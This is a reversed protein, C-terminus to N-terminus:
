KAASLRLQFEARADIRAHESSADMQSVFTPDNRLEAIKRQCRLKHDAIIAEDQPSLGIRREIDDSALLLGLFGIFGLMLM